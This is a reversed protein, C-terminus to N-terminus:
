TAHASDSVQKMFLGLKVRVDSSCEPDRMVGFIPERMGPIMLLDVLIANFVPAELQALRNLFIELLAAEKLSNWSRGSIAALVEIESGIGSNLVDSFVKVKASTDYGSIARLLASLLLINTAAQKNVEQQIREKLTNFLARSITTNELLQSFNLLPDDPMADIAKILLQENHDQDLRAIVDAIGQLGLFQWQDLGTEGTLYHHAHQYYQSAPQDLERTALAHFAALRYPAPKFAFPSENLEDLVKKGKQKAQINKGTQELLEILFADRSEQKLFGLEDIPFQLFWIVSEHQKGDEWLLLALWAKQQFPYPYPQKQNELKEFLQNGISVVRRGMDFIRYNFDSSQIFHSISDFKQMKDNTAESFDPMIAYTVISRWDV